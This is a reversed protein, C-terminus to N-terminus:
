RRRRIPRCASRYLGPDLRVPAGNRRRQRRRARIGGLTSWALGILSAAWLALLCALVFVEVSPATPTM